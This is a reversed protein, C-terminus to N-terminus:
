IYRSIERVHFFITLVLQFNLSLRFISRNIKRESCFNRKKLTPQSIMGKFKYTLDDVQSTKFM